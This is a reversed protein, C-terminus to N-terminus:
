AKAAHESPNEIIIPQIHQLSLTKVGVSAFSVQVSIGDDDKLVVGIGWDLKQNPHKVVCGIKYQM